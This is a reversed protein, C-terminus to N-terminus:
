DSGPTLGGTEVRVRYLSTRATIYLTKMDADGWALNAPVEPVDIKGLLEGGPNFIWIGGPGTCFVNGYVDVKMGDPVGEREADELEAFLRGNALTGDPQVDFARIHGEQSDNVYLTKEDPSFVLGNPRIFSDDLLTLTGDPALRFVGNFDLEKGVRQDPLGYPPDTFYISTDSAVVVDNPSNLRNGDYLDALTVVTGDSETRSVRRNGHECAILRGEADLTLGNSNGSPLRYVDSESAGPTWKYITDAPIDSFLLFGDAIWIPGEVFQYDGTIKEVQADPDLIVQPEQPVPM